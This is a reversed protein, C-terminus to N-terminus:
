QISRYYDRLSGDPDVENWADEWKERLFEKMYSRVQQNFERAVQNSYDRYSPFLLPDIYFDLKDYIDVFDEPEM